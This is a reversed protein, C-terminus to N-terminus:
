LVGSITTVKLGQMEFYSQLYKNDVHEVGIKVKSGRNVKCMESDLRLRKYDYGNNVLVEAFDDGAKDPDTFIFVEDCELILNDIRRRVRNNMVTGDCHVAKINSFNQELKDKDHLGEVIFGYM